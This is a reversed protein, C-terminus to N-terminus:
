CAIGELMAMKGEFLKEYRADSVNPGYRQAGTWSTGDVFVADLYQKADERDHFLSISLNAFFDQAAVVSPDVQPRSGSGGFPVLNGFDDRLWWEPHANFVDMVFPTDGLRDAPQYFAVKLKPNHAKLAKAVSIKSDEGTGNYQFNWFNNLLVTHYADAITNIWWPDSLSFDERYTGFNGVLMSNSPCSICDWGHSIARVTFTCSLALLTPLTWKRGM